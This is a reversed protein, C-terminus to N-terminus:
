EARRRLAALTSEGGLPRYLPEVGRVPEGAKAPVSEDTDPAMLELRAEAVALKRQLLDIRAEYYDRAAVAEVVRALCGIATMALVAGVFGQFAFRAASKVFRM